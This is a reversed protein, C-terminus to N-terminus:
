EYDKWNTLREEMVIKCKTAFTDPNMTSVNAPWEACGRGQWVVTSTVVKEPSHGSTSDPNSSSSTFPPTTNGTTLSVRRAFRAQSATCTVPGSDHVYAGNSDLCLLYSENGGNRTDLSWGTESSPEFMLRYTNTDVSSNLNYPSAFTQPYCPRNYGNYACGGGTTYLDDNSTGTDQAALWNSDRFMRVVELGERALNTAIIQDRAYVSNSSSYIALGLGATLAMVLISLAVITEIM